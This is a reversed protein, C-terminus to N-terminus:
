MGSYVGPLQEKAVDKIHNSFLDGEKENQSNADDRGLWREPKWEEADNGWIDKSKNAALVAVRIKTNKKIQLEHVPKGDVGPIPSSLPLIMDKRASLVALHSSCFYFIDALPFLVYMRDLIPVPPYLRMMERCVADLYPLNMLTDYDLDGHVARAQTVENRLREQAELNHSLIWLIRTLASTTTDHGAFIFLSVCSKTYDLSCM